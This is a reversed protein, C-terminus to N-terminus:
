QVKIYYTTKSAKESLDFRCTPLKESKSSSKSVDINYKGKTLPGVPFNPICPHKVQVNQLCLHINTYQIYHPLFMDSHVWEEGCRVAKLVGVAATTQREFGQGIHDAHARTRDEFLMERPESARPLYQLNKIENTSRFHMLEHRKACTWSLCHQVLLQYYNLPKAVVAKSWFKRSFLSAPSVTVATCQCNVSEFHWSVKEKQLTIKAHRGHPDDTRWTQGVHHPRRREWHPEAAASQLVNGLASDAAYVPHSFESNCLSENCVNVRGSATPTDVNVSTIFVSVELFPSEELMNIFEPFYDGVEEDVAGVLSVQRMAGARYTGQSYTRKVQLLPVRLFCILGEGSFCWFIRFGVHSKSGTKFM